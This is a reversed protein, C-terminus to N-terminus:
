ATHSLDKPRATVPKATDLMMQTVGGEIWARGEDVLKYFTGRSTHLRIMRDKLRAPSDPYAGYFEKVAEAHTERDRRMEIWVAAILEAIQLEDDTIRTPPTEFTNGLRPPL